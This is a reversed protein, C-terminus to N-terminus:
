LSSKLIAEHLAKLRSKGELLIDNFLKVVIALKDSELLVTDGEKLLTSTWTGSIVEVVIGDRRLSIIGSHKFGCSRAINLLRQAVDLSNAVFHMIPGSAIIWLRYACRQKLVNLVEDLSVAEHKKFVVTSEKRVWPYPADVLTIRGSCSSITFINRCKEFIDMIFRVIDRDVYGIEIDRVFTQWAEERWRIWM